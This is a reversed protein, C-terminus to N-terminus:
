FQKKKRVNIDDTLQFSETQLKRKIISLEAEQQKMLIRSDRIEQVLAERSATALPTNKKMMRNEKKSKLDEAYQCIKCWGTM